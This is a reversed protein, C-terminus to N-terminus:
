AVMPAYTGPLFTQTPAGAALQPVSGPVGPPASGPAPAAGPAGVMPMNANAAPQPNLIGAATTVFSSLEELRDEPAGQTQILLYERQGMTVCMKLNMFPEPTVNKEGNDVIRELVWEVSEIAANYLSLIRDIDPHEILDRAEDLTIIGAQALETVRQQRGAPTNSAASSVAMEYCLDDLDIDKWRLMRPRVGGYKSTHLVDPVKGAGLKKCCAIVLWMTDEVFQEYAREQISFRQSHTQRAERVGEGSQIGAPVAGSVMLQNIGTEREAQARIRDVDDYTEKGVAQYDIGEPKQVKYSGVTLGVQSFTKFALNQDQKHVWVMPNAKKDLSTTIQWQRRNLLTQHPLIREALSHGYFGWVPDNWRMVSFPFYDDEYEEDVLDVGHICITHRGPVHSPHDAPGIPLRWSEIVVIENKALSRYGAWRRWDGITQARYIQDAFDPYQAILLERDYFERYHIQLPRGDRCELEDVIINEIPVPRVQIRDFEDIWVKNVGTGKLAAGLKFGYQCKPIVDFLKMLANAYRELRKANQQRSFDADDTQIRLLIDSDAVNAAITDVGQAILNETMVSKHGHHKSEGKDYTRGVGLGSRRNTRPNQDYLAEERLFKEFQLIQFNEVTRVYPLVQLHARGKAANWWADTRYKAAIAM